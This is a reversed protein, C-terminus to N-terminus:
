AARAALEFFRGLGTLELIRLVHANSGTLMMLGGSARVRQAAAALVAIGTSDVFTVGAVDVRVDVVGDPVQQLAAELQPAAFVDLEGEAAFHYANDVRTGTIRFPVTTELVRM